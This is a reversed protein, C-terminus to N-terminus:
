PHTSNQPRSRATNGIRPPASERCEVCPLPPRLSAPALSEPSPAPLASRAPLVPNTPAAVEPPIALGRLPRLLQLALVLTGPSIRTGTPAPTSCSKDCAGCKTPLPRASARTRTPVSLIPPPAALAPALTTPSRLVLFFTACAM